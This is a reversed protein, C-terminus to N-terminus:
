DVRSGRVAGGLRFIKCPIVAGPKVVIITESLRVHKETVKSDGIAIEEHESSIGIEKADLLM